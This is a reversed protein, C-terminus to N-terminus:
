MLKSTGNYKVAGRTGKLFTFKNLYDIDQSNESVNIRFKGLLMNGRLVFHYQSPLLEIMVITKYM